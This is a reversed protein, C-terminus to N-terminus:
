QGEMNRLPVFVTSFGSANGEADLDFSLMTREQGRSRLEITATAIERSSGKGSEPSLRIELDVKMPFQSVRYAHVNVTYRGPVIGRSVSTESNLDTFDTTDGLDDRLLDTQVGHTNSYGIASQDAPGKVWLDVDFNGKPWVITYVINGPPQANSEATPPNLWPLMWVAMAVFSLLAIFLFDRFLVGARM